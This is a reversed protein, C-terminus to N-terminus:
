GEEAASDCGEAPLTARMAAIYDAKGTIRYKGSEHLIVPVAEVARVARHLTEDAVYNAIHRLTKAIADHLKLTDEYTQRDDRLAECAILDGIIEQSWDAIQAEDVASM